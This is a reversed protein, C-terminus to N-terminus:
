KEDLVKRVINALDQMVLPKMVFARIGMANAKEESIIESFGTCLVIPINPRIAMIKKALNEGTMNPMTQDTIVLDFKEPQAKFAELAEISSTRAVFEYGLRELMQKAIEILVEEDDVFLIREHGIPLERIIEEKEKEEFEMRPFLVHFETGKGPESSVNIRDFSYGQGEIKM